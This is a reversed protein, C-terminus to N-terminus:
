RKIAKQFSAFIPMWQPLALPKTSKKMAPMQAVWAFIEMISTSFLFADQPVYAYHSRLTDLPIHQIAKSGLLIDGEQTDWYRMLLQLLTSKGSGTAGAIGLVQQQKLEFSVQSLAAQETDPYHFTLHNVTIDYGHTQERGNDAISDPLNLLQELRGIAANGRQLINM